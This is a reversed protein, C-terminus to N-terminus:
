RHTAGASPRSRGSRSSGRGTGSSGRRRSSPPQLARLMLRVTWGLAAATLLTWLVAAVPGVPWLVWGPMVFTAVGWPLGALWLRGNPSWGLAYVRMWTDTWASRRIPQLSMAVTGSVTQPGISDRSQTTRSLKERSYDPQLSRALYTWSLVALPISALPLLILLFGILAAWIAAIVALELTFAIPNVDHFLDHPHWGSSGLGITLAASLGLTIAALATWVVGVVLYGIPRLLLAIRSPVPAYM